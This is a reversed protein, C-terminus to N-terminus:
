SRVKAGQWHSLSERLQDANMSTPSNLLEQAIQGQLQHMRGAQEAPSLRQVPAKRVATESASRAAHQGLDQCRRTHSYMKATLRRLADLDLM